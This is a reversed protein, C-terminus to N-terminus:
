NEYLLVSEAFNVNAGFSPWFKLLISPRQFVIYHVVRSQFLSFSIAFLTLLFYHFGNGYFNGRIMSM